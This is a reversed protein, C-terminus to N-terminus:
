SITHTIGAFPMALKRLNYSLLKCLRKGDLLTSLRNSSRHFHTTMGETKKVVNAVAAVELYEKVVLELTQPTCYGGPLGGWARKITSGEHLVKAHIDEFTLGVSELDLETHRRISNGTHREALFDTAGILMAHLRTLDTDIYYLMTVMLSIDIDSWIYSAMSPKIGGAKLSSVSKKNHLNRKAVM